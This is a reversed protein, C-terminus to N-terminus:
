INTSTTHKLFKLSGIARMLRMSVSGFRDKSTLRKQLKFSTRWRLARQWSKTPIMLSRGIELRRSLWALIIFALIDTQRAILYWKDSGMWITKDRQTAFWVQKITSFLCLQQTTWKLTHNSSCQSNLKSANYRSASMTKPTKLLSSQDKSSRKLPKLSILLSSNSPLQQQAMWQWANLRLKVVM